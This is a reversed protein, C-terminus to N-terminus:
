FEVERAGIAHTARNKRAEKVGDSSHEPRSHEETSQQFGCTSCKRMVSRTDRNIEDMTHTKCRPCYTSKTLNLEHEKLNYQIIKIQTDLQKIKRLHGIWVILMLFFIGITIYYTHEPMQLNVWDKIFITVDM